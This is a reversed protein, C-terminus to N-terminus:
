AQRRGQIFQIVTMVVWTGVVGIVLGFLLSYGTREMSLVM